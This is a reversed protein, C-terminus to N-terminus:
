RRWKEENAQMWSILEEGEAPGRGPSTLLDAAVQSPAAYWVGDRQTAGEFVGEDNPEILLVNAGSEAPRLSLRVAAAAADRVWVAAARVPASPAFAAAALGGTVVYREDSTALRAILPSLGRPELFTRVAGRSEIPAEQAWRRLLAPWDVSQMRGRGVRTVLAESDLLALVRSVYGADIKTVAALERVGPPEKRDVLARVIWGAKAGRLSRAPRKERDPDESAGQTEIYLGPEPVVIRVNGTLDLFGLDGDRLRERTAESLYRAVVVLPGRLRAQAAADLLPRVGKPDLRIRAELGLVCARRDPAALKVTADVGAGAEFKPTGVTWGPPLRQRLEQLGERVLVNDSIRLNCATHLV